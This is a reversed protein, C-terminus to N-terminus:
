SLGDKPDRGPRKRYSAHLIAVQLSPNRNAPSPLMLSSIVLPLKRSHRIAELPSEIVRPLIASLIERSDAEQNAKQEDARAFGHFCQDANHASNWKNRGAQTLLWVPIM